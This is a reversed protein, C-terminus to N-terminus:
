TSIHNYNEFTECTLFAQFNEGTTKCECLSYLLSKTVHLFTKMSSYYTKDRTHHHDNLLMMKLNTVVIIDTNLIQLFLILINDKKDFIVSM